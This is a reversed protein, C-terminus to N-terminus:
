KKIYFYIDRFSFLEAIEEIDYKDKETLSKTQIKAKYMKGAGLYKGFKDYFEVKEAIEEKELM